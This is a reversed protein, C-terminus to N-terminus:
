LVVKREGPNSALPRDILGCKCGTEHQASQNLYKSDGESQTAVM